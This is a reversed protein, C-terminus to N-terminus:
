QLEGDIFVREVENTHLIVQVPVMGEDEVSNPLKFMILDAAKEPELAGSNIGLAAAGNITVARLLDRALLRLDLCTHMFLSARIEKFLNISYNSSLGDTAVTYPIERNKIEELDLLGAGLLRNSVPCHVMTGNMADIMDLERANAHVGHVFLVDTDVFHSLFTESDTVPRDTKLFENFFAKFEGSGEDLWKREARSEMFHTSIKLHKKRAIETAKKVLVPHTAYPSHVAIAPTFTSSISEEAMALRAQFDQYMADVAAPVSGILESFYVVKLPTEVCADFDYGFSSIAGFATTGSRMMRAIMADFCERSCGQTLQERHEMVSYLWGVFNGYELTTVNKSFELHIHPNVLGPMVVSNVGGDFLEAGAYRTELAVPDDSVEVVNRDFAIAGNKIIRNERDMTLIYDARIIKMGYGKRQGLAGSRAYAPGASKVARKTLPM